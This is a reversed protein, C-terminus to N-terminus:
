SDIETEIQHLLDAVRTRRRSGRIVDIDVAPATSGEDPAFRITGVRPPPYDEFAPTIAADLHDSLRGPDLAELTGDAIADLDTLVRGLAHVLLEAQERSTMKRSRVFDQRARGTEEYRRNRRRRVPGTTLEPTTPETVDQYRTRGARNTQRLTRREPVGLAIAEDVEDLVWQMGQAIAFERLKRIADALEQDTM